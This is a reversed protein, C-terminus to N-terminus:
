REEGVVAKRKSEYFIEVIKPSFVSADVEISPDTAIALNIQERALDKEDLTYYVIGLLLHTQAVHYKSKLLPLARELYSRAGEYDGDAFLEAGMTVLREVKPDEEVIDKLKYTVSLYEMIGEFELTGPIVQENKVRTALCWQVQKPLEKKRKALSDRRLPLRSTHCQVCSKGSPGVFEETEFILKGMEYPPLKKNKPLEPPSFSHSASLEGTVVQALCALAALTALIGTRKM